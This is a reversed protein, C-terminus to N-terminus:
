LMKQNSCENQVDQLSFPNTKEKMAKFKRASIKRALLHHPSKGALHTGKTNNEDNCIHNKGQNENIIFQNDLNGQNNKRLKRQIDLDLYCEPM